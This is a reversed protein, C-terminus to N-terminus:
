DKELPHAKHYERQLTETQVDTYRQTTILSSHGLLEQISRLDVGAALLQTAFSHRLAHPTLNDALGLRVRLKQVQRQVIRPSLREGRAGLFLPEGEQQNYPAQKLYACINEWVIPLLPVIREKNGKGKIRLFESQANIDGINLALAESIRLGCGYLLTLIAKDRLGQWADKQVKTTEDLIDFADTEDVAKPLVKPKRPSNIVSIAPNKIIENVDLWKFFNKIASLERGMSNKNIYQAARNSLFSRFDRVELAALSQLSNEKQPSIKALFIALDRSYGDLTHASYLREKALWNQWKAITSKLEEDANFKIAEKM